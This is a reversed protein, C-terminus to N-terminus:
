RAAAEGRLFNILSARPVFVCRVGTGRAVELAGTSIYNWITRQSRHLHEAAQAVTMMPPLCSQLDDVWDPNRSYTSM